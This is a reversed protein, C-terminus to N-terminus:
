YSKYISEGTGFPTKESPLPIRSAFFNKVKILDLKDIKKEKTAQAKPTM